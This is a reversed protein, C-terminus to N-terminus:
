IQLTCIYIYIGICICICRYSNMPLDYVKIFGLSMECVRTTYPRHGDCCFRWLHTALCCASERGSEFMVLTGTTPCESSWGRLHWMKARLVLGQAFCLAGCILLVGLALGCPAPRPIASRPTFKNSSWGQSHLWPRGLGGHFPLVTRFPNPSLLWLLTQMDRWWSCSSYNDLTDAYTQAQIWSSLNVTSMTDM